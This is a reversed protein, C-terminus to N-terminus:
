IDNLLLDPLRINHYRIHGRAICVNEILDTEGMSDIPWGHQQASVRVGNREIEL